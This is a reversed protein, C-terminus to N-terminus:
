HERKKSLKLLNKRKHLNTNNSPTSLPPFQSCVNGVKPATKLPIQNEFCLSTNQLNWHFKTPNGFSTKSKLDEFEIGLYRLNRLAVELDEYKLKKMMFFKCTKQLLDKFFRCIKKMFVIEVYDLFLRGGDRGGGLFGESLIKWKGRL